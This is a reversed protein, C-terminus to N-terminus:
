RLSLRQTTFMSKPQSALWDLVWDYADEDKIVDVHTMFQEMLFRVLLSFYSSLMNMVVGAILLFFGGQFIPNNYVGDASTPASELLAEPHQM